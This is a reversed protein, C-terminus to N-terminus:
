QGNKTRVVMKEDNKMEKKKKGAKKWVALLSGQLDEFAPPPIRKNIRPGLLTIRKNGESTGKIRIRMKKEREQFEDVSYAFYGEEDTPQPDEKRTAEDISILTAFVGIGEKSVAQCILKYKGDKGVIDIEVDTARNSIKPLVVVKRARVPSGALQAEISASVIGEPIVLDVTARGEEDSTTSNVLESNVFFNVMEGSIAMKEFDSVIATAKVDWVEGTKRAPDCTLEVRFKERM